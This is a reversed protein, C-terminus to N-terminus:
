RWDHQGFLFWATGARLERLQCDMVSIPIRPGGSFPLVKVAPWKSQNFVAPMQVCMLTYGVGPLYGLDTISLLRTQYAPDSGCCLKASFLFPEEGAGGCVGAGVGVCLTHACMYMGVCTCVCM